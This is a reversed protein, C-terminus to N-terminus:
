RGHKWNELITISAVFTLVKTAEIYLLFLSLLFLSPFDQKLLIYLLMKATYMM